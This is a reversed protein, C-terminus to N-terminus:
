LGSRKPLSAFAEKAQAKTFHKSSERSHQEQRNSEHTHETRSTHNISRLYNNCQDRKAESLTTENLSDYLAQM